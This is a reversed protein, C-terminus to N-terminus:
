GKISPEIIAHKDFLITSEHVMRYLRPVQTQLVDPTTVVEWFGGIGGYEFSIVWPEQWVGQKIQQLSWDLFAWDAATMPLHDMLSGIYPQLISAQIGADKVLEVWHGTLRHIGTVHIERTHQVPLANIYRRADMGLYHAALQAHSLDLLFGCGAEAVVRSIVDPALSLPLYRGLAYPVNEAIVMDRGFRRIVVELDRLFAEVLMDAHAPDASEHPIHPFEAASQMLHVNVFPTKTQALLSEIKDWNVPQKTETDIVEGRGGGVKLPFHVYVPRTKRAKTVLDPWAPCKFLDIHVQDVALLDNLPHSYNIALKM